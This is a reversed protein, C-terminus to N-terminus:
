RFFEETSIPDYNVLCKFTYVENELYKELEEGSTIAELKELETKVNNESDFLIVYTRFFELKGHEYDYIVIQYVNKIDTKDVRM